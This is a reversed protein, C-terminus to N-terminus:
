RAGRPRHSGNNRCHRASGGRSAPRPWGDRAGPRSRPSPGASCPRSRCGRSAAPGQCCSQACVSAPWSGRPGAKGAAPRRRAPGPRAQRGPARCPSPASIHERQWSSSPLPPRAASGCSGRLEGPEVPFVQVLLDVVELGLAPAVRGGVAAALLQARRVHDVDGGPEGGLAHTGALLGQGVRPLAFVAALEELVAQRLAAYRGADGAVPGGGLAQRRQLRRAQGPLPRFVQCCWNCPKRSPLRPLLAVMRATAPPRSSLSM